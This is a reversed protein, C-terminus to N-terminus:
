DLSGISPPSGSDATQQGGLAQALAVAASMAAEEGEEDPPIGLAQGMLRSTVLDTRYFSM